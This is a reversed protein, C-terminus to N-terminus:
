GRGVLQVEPRALNQCQDWLHQPRALTGRPIGSLEGRGEDGM